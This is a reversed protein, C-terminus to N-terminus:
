GNGKRFYRAASRCAAALEAVAAAVELAAVADSDSRSARAAGLFAYTAGGGRAAGGARM